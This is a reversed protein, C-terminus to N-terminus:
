LWYQLAWDGGIFGCWHAGHLVVWLDTSPFFHRSLFQGSTNEVMVLGNFGAVLREEVVGQFGEQLEASDVGVWGWMKVKGRAKRDKRQSYESMSSRVRYYLKKLSM